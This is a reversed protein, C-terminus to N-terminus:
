LLIATSTFIEHLNENTKATKVKLLQDEDQLLVMLNRLLETQEKPQSVALLFVVEVSVTKTPEEMLCFEVPESLTAIAVATKKVHTYDTHPIAVNIKGAKLGTPLSSERELVAQIYTEKVLDNDLLQQGLTQIVENFDSAELEANLILEAM